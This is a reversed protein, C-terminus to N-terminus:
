DNTFKIHIRIKEEKLSQYQMEVDADINISYINAIRLAGNLLTKDLSNVISKLYFDEKWEKLPNKSYMSDILTKTKIDGKTWLLKKEVVSRDEKTGGSLKLEKSYRSENFTDKKFSSNTELELGKVPDNAKVAVDVKLNTKTDELREIHYNIELAGLNTAINIFEEITDDKINDLRCIPYLFKSNKPHTIYYENECLDDINEFKEYDKNIIILNNKKRESKSDPEYKYHELFPKEEEEIRQIAQNKDKATKFNKLHKIINEEEPTKTGDVEIIDEILQDIKNNYDLGKEVFLKLADTLMINDKKLIINDINNKLKFLKDKDYKQNELNLLEENIYRLIIDNEEVKIGDVNAISYMLKLLSPLANVKNDNSLEKMYLSISRIGISAVGVLPFALFWIM